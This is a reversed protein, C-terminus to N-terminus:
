GEMFSQEPLHWDCDSCLVESRSGEALPDFRKGCCYCGFDFTMGDENMQYQYGDASDIGARELDEDANFEAVKWAAQDRDHADGFHAPNVCHPVKCYKELSGLPPKGYCVEWLLQLHSFYRRVGDIRWHIRHERKKAKFQYQSLWHDGWHVVKDFLVSIREPSLLM